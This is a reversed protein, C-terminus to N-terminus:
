RPTLESKTARFLRWKGVIDKKYFHLMGCQECRMIRTSKRIDIEYLELPYNCNQCRGIHAKPQSRLLSSHLSGGIDKM